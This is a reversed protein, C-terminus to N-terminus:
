PSLDDRHIDQQMGAAVMILLEALCDPCTGRQEIQDLAPALEAAALEM